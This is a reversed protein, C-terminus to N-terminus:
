NIWLSKMIRSLNEESMEDVDEIIRINMDKARARIYEAKMGMRDLGSAILVKKVYRGGFRGAVVSLKYLEEYEIFGNKCSIFIPVLGKMLLVDIENTVDAKEQPEVEGDWDIYVGTLVDNYLEEGDEDRLSKAVVTIYMELIQGAKTLCKKIQENKYMFFVRKDDMQLNQIIGKENLSKFIHEHFVFKERRKELESKVQRIDIDVELSGERGMLSNMKDMANIQTNWLGTNERCIEWMGRVDKMFEDNYDWLYTGDAKEPSFLVKGGYIQINESVTLATAARQCVNGELDCDVLINNQINFRHMQIKEPYKGVIMGLAVLYLEDGGNLDFICDPNEEVIQSLVETIARLNNKGVTKYSFAIELGRIESVEKYVAISRQMKKRNDGVFIVKQPACLLASIINEVSMKDYFEIITM